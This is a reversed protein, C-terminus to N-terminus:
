RTGVRPEAPAEGERREGVRQMVLCVWEGEVCRGEPVFGARRLAAAVVGARAEGFGSVILSGGPRVMRGIAGADEIVPEALINAVLGDFGGRAPLSGADVRVISLVRNRRANERAATHQAKRMAKTAMAVFRSEAPKGAKVSKTKSKSESM